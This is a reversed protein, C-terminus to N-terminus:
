IIVPIKREPPNSDSKVCRISIGVYKSVNDGMFIRDTAWRLAVSWNDSCWFYGFYPASNFWGSWGRCGAGIASFGTINSGDIDEYPPWFSHGSLKLMKGATESLLVSVTDTTPDLHKILKYFDSNSPVKWGTPCVDSSATYWNYLAGYTSKYSNDNKYWCYAPTETGIWELSDIINPISNGNNFRTTRLNEAMWWQDGILVVKYNNGDIDDVSYQCYLSTCLFLLLISLWKM